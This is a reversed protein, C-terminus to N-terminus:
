NKSKLAAVVDEALQFNTSRSIQVKHLPGKWQDAVAAWVHFYQNSDKECYIGLPMQCGGEMMKLIKREISVTELTKADHLSRAAETAYDDGERIQFALVGQAAAPVFEKPNLPVLEFEDLQINLREIGAAALVIADYMGERLKQIRTPVNGRLDHIEVDPKLYLLQAKRRASSTGVVAESKLFLDLGPTYSEKKILLWDSPNARYSIGGIKLGPHSQTPLDKMSHVALDIENKLLADEIEKTFFGKGEIKDFSLHTTLDGTTKIIIIEVAYGAKELSNKTYNAQWLALESGRSGLRIIKSNELKKEKFYM